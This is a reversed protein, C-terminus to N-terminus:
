RGAAPKDVEEGSPRKYGTWAAPVIDHAIVEEAITEVDDERWEPSGRAAVPQSPFAAPSVTLRKLGCRKRRRSQHDESHDESVKRGFALM